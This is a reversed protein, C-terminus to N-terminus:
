KKAIIFYGGHYNGLKKHNKIWATRDLKNTLDFFPLLLYGFYRLIAPLSLIFDKKMSNRVTFFRGNIEITEISFGNKKLEKKWKILTRRQFDYPDAHIPYLFPISLVLKGGKKLVRYCETIGKDIEAVHEFLEIANVVDISETEVAHMDAVDLIINPNHKAEIDAFIWKEVQQKPKQTIGRDRGGIDLVVGKYIYVYKKLLKDLIQRRYTSRLYYKLKTLKM